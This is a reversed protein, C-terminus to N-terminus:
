RAKPPLIPMLETWIREAIHAYAEASGATDADFWRVFEQHVADRVDGISTCAPLLPLITDVEPEYEDTNHEFNIGIPDEVFLISSLREYASGWAHKLERRQQRIAEAETMTRTRLVGLDAALAAM